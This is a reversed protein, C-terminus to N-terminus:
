NGRRALENAIPLTLWFTTGKGLESTVWIRGGHLEVLAKTI